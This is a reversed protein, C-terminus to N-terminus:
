PSLIRAGRADQQTASSRARQRLFTRAVQAPTEGGGDVALNMRQMQVADIAGALGRLGRLVDPRQAVIRPGALLLADYPPIARRDDDLLQLDYSAIRGDTSFASIVDVEGQALAQYMLAPDMSRQSRFHLGYRKVLAPWEPRQFFEYDAGISLRPALPILESLDRLSLRRAEAGRMALAYRNEFGLACVVQIGYNHELYERIEHIVENREPLSTRKLITVWLTGSYDVYLDIDGAALADFAVTSGLSSVIRTAAHSTEAIRGAVIDALVYQETFAKAGIVVPAPADDRAAALASGAAYLYLALLPVLGGWVRARSRRRTGAEVLQILQDLLLALAAAAVCGVLIADDNRTQLGSFIFNGLSTAGVPTSLTAMGVTWVAATRIGAVLIPLALPLEVRWLRQRQTMGVGRAAELLDPDVSHLGSVTNRLIPLLSYLSLAVLAPAMGIGHLPIGFRATYVGAAALVPVMIALLALGPITQIVSATGLVAAELKPRRSAAIGLPVSLGIGVSLALLSLQLHADLYGPLLALQENM